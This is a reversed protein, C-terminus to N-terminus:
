SIKIYVSVSLIKIEIRHHVWNRFQTRNLVKKTEIGDIVSLLIFIVSWMWIESLQASKWSWLTSMNGDRKDQVEWDLLFRFNMM